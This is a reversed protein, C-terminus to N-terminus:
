PWQINIKAICGSPVHDVLGLKYGQCGEQVWCGLASGVFASTNVTSREM